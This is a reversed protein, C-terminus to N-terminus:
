QEERLSSSRSLVAPPAGCGDLKRPFGRFDSANGATLADIKRLVDNVDADVGSNVRGDRGRRKDLVRNKVDAATVSGPCYTPAYAFRGSGDRYRV